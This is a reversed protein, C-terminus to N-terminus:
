TSGKKQVVGFTAGGGELFVREEETSERGLAGNRHPYRGFRELIERHEQEAKFQQKIMYKSAECGDRTALEQDFEDLIRKLTDHAALDESHMLPLYFWMRHATSARWQPHLDPRSSSLLTTTLSSALADYHTYVTKLTDDTRFINRPIQDLLIVQSLATWAAASSDSSHQQLDHLFPATSANPLNSPGISHLAAGFRAKCTADFALREDPTGAFWRKIVTEDVSSGDLPTDQLWLDTVQTYLAPTFITKNLTSTSM